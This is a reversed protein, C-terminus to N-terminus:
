LHRLRSRYKDLLRLNHDDTSGVNASMFVPPAINQALLKTVVNYVISHLLAIGIVTSTPAITAELGPATLAADGEVGCNDLIYDAVEHLHQGSPHRSPQANAHALSTLAIIHLGRAKCALAMEIPVSNRGSNSAIIIVEGPKVSYRDLVIEAYGPLRELQSSSLASEHLMLMPDLIANVPVLGGARYFLEEALMHGHGTGFAHLVGGNAISTAILTAITEITAANTQEAQTLLDRIKDFYPLMTM